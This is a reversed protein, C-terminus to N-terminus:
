KGLIIWDMANGIMPGALTLAKLSHGSLPIETYDLRPGGAVRIASDGALRKDHAGRVLAIRVSPPISRVVDAIGFSGPETPEHLNALDSATIFFHSRLTPAMALVGALHAPHTHAATWIALSAGFSHGGIVLPLTDAHLEAASRAILPVIQRQFTRARVAADDPLKSLYQKIDFGVVDYGRDALRLALREHSEWFGVDNGFFFLIAKPANSTTSPYFYLPLTRLTPDRPVYTPKASSCASAAVFVVCLWLRHVISRM